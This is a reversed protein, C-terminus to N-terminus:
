KLQFLPQGYQVPKGDEAIVRAITGSTEAKIENMVKMAEIICVTTNAEVHDGVSVFNKEGPATARYFTGVMPSNISPGAPEEKVTPLSLAAPAAAPPVALQPQQAGGYVVQPQSSGGFGAPLSSLLDKLADIDHGRRLQINAGERELQFFSIENKAMLDVIAKIEALDM